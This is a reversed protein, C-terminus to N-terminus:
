RNERRNKGKVDLHYYTLKLALTSTIRAEARPLKGAEEARLSWGGDLYPSIIRLLLSTNM